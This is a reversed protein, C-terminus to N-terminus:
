RSPNVQYVPWGNFGTRFRGTALNGDDLQADISRLDEISLALPPEPSFATLGIFGPMPNPASEKPPESTAIPGAPTAEKDAAPPPPDKPVVLPGPPLMWDYTGGFPPGPLWRSNALAAEMGPPIRLDANTAAPWEGKQTRYNEFIAALSRVETVFQVRQRRHQMRSIESATVYVALVFVLLGLGADLLTFGRTSRFCSPVRRVRFAPRALNM